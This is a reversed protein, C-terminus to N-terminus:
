NANGFKPYKKYIMSTMASQSMSQYNSKIPMKTRSVGSQEILNNGLRSINKTSGSNQHPQALLTRSKVRQESSLAGTEQQQLLKSTDNLKSLNATSTPDALQERM